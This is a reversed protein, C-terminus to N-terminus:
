ETMCCFLPWMENYDVTTYDFWFIREQWIHTMWMYWEEINMGYRDYEVMYGHSYNGYLLWDVRTPFFVKLQIMQWLQEDTMDISYGYLIDMDYEM